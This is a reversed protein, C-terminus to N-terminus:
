IHRMAFSLDVVKSKLVAVAPFAPTSSTLIAMGDHSASVCHEKERLWQVSVLAEFLDGLHMPLVVQVQELRPLFNDLMRDDM